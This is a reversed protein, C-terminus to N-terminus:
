LTLILKTQRISLFPIRVEHESTERSKQGSREPNVKTKETLEIGEADANKLIGEHMLGDTTMVRVSKGIRRLYQKFVKLPQDMGPSSVEIEHTELFNEGTLKESLFRSMSVCEDITIGSPKDIFVSLRSPSLQVDVLFQETGTLRDEIISIIEEKGM